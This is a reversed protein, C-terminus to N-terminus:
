ISHLANRNDEQQREKIGAIMISLSPFSDILSLTFCETKGGFRKLVPIHQFSRYQRHLEKELRKVESLPLIMDEILTIHYCQPMLNFRSHVDAQSSMGIKYFSDKLVKSKGSIHDIRIFYLHGKTEEAYWERQATRERASQVLSRFINSQSPTATTDTAIM